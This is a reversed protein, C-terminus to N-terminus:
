QTRHGAGHLPQTSASLQRTKVTRVTAPPMNVVHAESESRSFFSVTAHPSAHLPVTRSPPLFSPLFRILQVVARRQKHSALASETGVGGHSAHPRPSKGSVGGHSM